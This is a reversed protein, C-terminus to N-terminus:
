ARSGNLSASNLRLLSLSDSSQLNHACVHTVSSAKGVKVVINGKPCNHLLRPHCLLENCFSTHYYPEIDARGGARAPSSSATPQRATPAFPGTSLAIPALEQAYLQSLSPNDDDSDRKSSAPTGTLPNVSNRGGNIAPEAVFQPHWEPVVYVHDDKKVIEDNNVPPDDENRRRIQLEGTFDVLRDRALKSRSHVVAHLGLYSDLVSCFESFILV